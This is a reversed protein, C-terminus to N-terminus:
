ATLTPTITSPHLKAQHGSSYLSHRLTDPKYNDVAFMCTGVLNSKGNGRDVLNRTYARTPDAFAFKTWDSENSDYNTMATKLEEVDIGESDIGNCPGLIRNIESILAQFRNQPEPSARASDHLSLSSSKRSDFAEVKPQIHTSAM